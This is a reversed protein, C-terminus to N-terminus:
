RMRMATAVRSLALAMAAGQLDMEHADAYASIEKWTKRVHAQLGRLLDTEAYVGCETKRWELFDAMPLGFDGIMAPILLSGANLEAHVKGGAELVLTAQPRTRVEQGASAVLVDSPQQLLDDFSMGDAEPYGFVVKEREVFSSLSAVSLGNRQFVAGSQDSVGIVKAGAKQLEVAITRAVADFGAVIVRAGRLELTRESAAAALVYRVFKAAIHEREVGGMSPPKGTIGALTERDTNGLASMAWASVQPLGGHEPTIVDVGHGIVGRLTQVYARTLLRAERESLEDLSAALWGASGGFPLNWLAYQWTAQMAMAHSDPLTLSRSFMLPGMLPGRAGCHQVRIGRFMKPQGNDDIIELNVQIERECQHLRRVIWPELDLFRATEELQEAAMMEASVEREVVFGLERSVM